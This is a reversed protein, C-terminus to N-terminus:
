YFLVSPVFRIENDEKMLHVLYHLLHNIPPREQQITRSTRLALTNDVTAM